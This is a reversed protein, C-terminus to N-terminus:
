IGISKKMIKPQAQLNRQTSRRSRKVKSTSFMCKKPINEQIQNTSKSNRDNKLSKPDFECIGDPLGGIFNQSLKFM